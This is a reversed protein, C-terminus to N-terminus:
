DWSQTLIDSLFSGNIAQVIHSYEYVRLNLNEYALWRKELHGTCKQLADRFTLNPHTEKWRETYARNHILRKGKIARIWSQKIHM